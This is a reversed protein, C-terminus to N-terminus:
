DEFKSLFVRKGADKRSLELAIELRNIVETVGDVANFGPGLQVDCVAACLSPGNAGDAKVQSVVRRLKEVALGGQPLPTDPFAIAIACPGYRIAIDNQRLNSQLAKSVQQIYQQMGVDGLSKVLAVPNEPAILCVSLSHSQEKSRAAEVLLCDLYSSRPLLGTEEDSGALSRVLRRLKSNNVALIIQPAIAKLLISEGPSWVRLRDCQEVLILGAPNEQDFLPLALLARIRLKQVESSLPALVPFHAADEVLWGDPKATAQLMLAMCLKLAAPVDSPSAAPSCYEITFTPQREASGLAAWCRSAGLARGIQNVAVQMVGQPTSERYINATIESIKRIEDLPRPSPDPQVRPPEASPTAAPPTAAEFASPAGIAPKFGTVDYLEQLRKNKEEAGPYLRNIKELTEKLKAALQYQHFMEGELLLDDLSEPKPLAARGAEGPAGTQSPAGSFVQVRSLISKYYAADIHGELNLLRDQHGEGYPDVDLIREMADSAKQYNEAGLYLNFLRALSRRLGDENNMEDYLGTLTELVESNSEDGEYIKEVINLFEKRKGEKVLREKVKGAVGLAKNADGTKVFGEALQLVLDLAEPRAKYAKWCVPEAKEYNGSGLYAQALLELVLLDDPKSRSLPELLVIAESPRSKKLFVEAAATAAAEDTGDLAHAREVLEAWRDAQGAKRSLQAAKLLSPMALKIQRTRSAQEALEVHAELNEPDLKVIHQLCELAQQSAGAVRHLALATRWAELADANKQSRELLAGLKTLIAADQPALKLVKRCTAVAKSVDNRKIYQDVLQSQFRLGDATRSLKLSLDGLSLLAAENNPELKYIEQFTELASEFKQKQLYKEAKEFLKDIDPM